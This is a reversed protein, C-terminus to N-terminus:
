RHLRGSQGYFISKDHKVSATPVVPYYTATGQISPCTNTHGIHTHEHSFTAGRGGRTRKRRTHILNLSIEPWHFRAAGIATKHQDSIYNHKGLWVTCVHVYVFACACSCVSMQFWVACECIHYVSLCVHPPSSNCDLGWRHAWVPFM